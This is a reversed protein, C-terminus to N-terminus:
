RLFGDFFRYCMQFGRLLPADAETTCPVAPSYGAKKKGIKFKLLAGCAM